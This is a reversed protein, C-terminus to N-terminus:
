QWNEFKRKLLQPSHGLHPSPSIIHPFTSPPHIDHVSGERIYGKLVRSPMSPCHSIADWQPHSSPSGSHHVTMETVDSWAVGDWVSAGMRRLALTLAYGDRCLIYMTVTGYEPSKRTKGSIEPFNWGDTFKRSFQLVLTDVVGPFGPFRRSNLHDEQFNKHLSRFNTLPKVVHHHPM